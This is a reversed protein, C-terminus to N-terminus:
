IPLDFATGPDPEASRYEIQLMALIKAANGEPDAKLWDNLAKENSASAKLPVAGLKRRGGNKSPLYLNIFGEAKEFERDGTGRPATNVTAASAKSAKNTNFAM